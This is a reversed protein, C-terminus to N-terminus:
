ITKSTLLRIFEEYNINGNQDPNAKKLLEETEQESFKEGMNQVMHRLEAEAIIGTSGGKPGGKDLVKFAELLEEEGDVDRWRRLILAVFDPFNLMGTNDPDIEKIMDEIESETPNQNLSRVLLGLQSTKIRGDGDKDFLSFAEKFDAIQDETAEM